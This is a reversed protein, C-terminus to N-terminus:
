DLTAFRQDYFELSVRNTKPIGITVSSSNNSSISNPPIQYWYACKKIILEELELVIWENDNLPVLFVVLILPIISGNEKAKEVLDNYNKVELDYKIFSEEDNDYGRIYSETVAKVQIDIAKGSTLYRKRTPCLKAKRITLDTGYDRSTSNFYGTRNAILEMYGKSIEEMIDNNTM